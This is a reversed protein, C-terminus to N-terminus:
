HWGTQLNLETQELICYHCMCTVNPKTEEHSRSIVNQTARSVRRDILRHVAPTTECATQEKCLPLGLCPHNAIFFLGLCPHNVMFVPERLPSKSIRGGKTHLIELTTIVHIILLSHVAEETGGGGKGGGGEM